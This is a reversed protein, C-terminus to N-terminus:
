SLSFIKTPARRSIRVATSHQGAAMMQEDCRVVVSTVSLIRSRGGAGSSGDSLWPLPGTLALVGHLGRCLSGIM